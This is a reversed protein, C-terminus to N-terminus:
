RWINMAVQYLEYQLGPDAQLRTYLEPIDVIQGTATRIETAVKSAFLEYGFWKQLLRGLVRRPVEERLLQQFEQLTIRCGSSGPKSATDLGLDLIPASHREEAGVRRARWAIRRM